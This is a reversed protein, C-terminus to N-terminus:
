VGTLDEEVAAEASIAASEPASALAAKAALADSIFFRYLAVGLSGGLLPGVIPV